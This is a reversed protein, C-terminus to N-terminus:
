RRRSTARRWGHRRRRQRGRQRCSTGRLPPVVALARAPRRGPQHRRRLRQRDPPCRDAPRGPLAARQHAPRRAQRRGPDARQAELAVGEPERGTNPGTNFDSLITRAGTLPDIRFLLGLPTTSPHGEDTVLIQGTADVAVSTPNSGPNAGVDFNSVSERVGTQPDVRVLEGLGSGTGGQGGQADIM